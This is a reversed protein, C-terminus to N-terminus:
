PAGVLLTQPSCGGQTQVMQKWIRVLDPRAINNNLLFVGLRSSLSQKGPSTILKEDGWRNEAIIHIIYM